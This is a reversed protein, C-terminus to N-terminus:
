KVAGVRRKICGGTWGGKQNTTKHTVITNSLALTHIWALNQLLCFFNHVDPWFFFLKQFNKSLVHHFHNDLRKMLFYAQRLAM